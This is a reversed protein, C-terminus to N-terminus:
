KRTASGRRAEAAPPVGMRRAQDPFRRTPARSRSSDSMSARREVESREESGAWEDAAEAGVEGSGLPAVEGSGAPPPPPVGTRSLIRSGLACTSFSMPSLLSGASAAALIMSSQPAACALALTVGSRGGPISRLGRNALVGWHSEPNMIGGGGGAFVGCRHGVSGRVVSTIRGM